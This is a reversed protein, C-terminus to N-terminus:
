QKLFSYRFLEKRPGNGLMVYIGEQLSSLELFINNDGAHIPFHYRKIMRGNMDMVSLLFSGEQLSHIALTTGSSVVTPFVKVSFDNKENGDIMVTRSFFSHGNKEQVKLRFYYPGGDLKVSTFAYATKNELAPIQVSAEFQRDQRAQQIEFYDADEAADIKWDLVALGSEFAARFDILKVPLPNELNISGALTVIESSHLPNLYNSVVSGALGFQGTVSLAGADIWTNNSLEAVRLTSLDTVGGSEPDQFSLELNAAPVPGTESSVTWYERSSIHDIGAGYNTSLARANSRIYEVTFNGTAQKLELWRIGPTKGVPFLFYPENNLGDKRLPGDIYSTNATSSDVVLSCGTALTLLSSSSSTIKGQKLELKYPLSLPSLLVAGKPNNMRFNINNQLSGTLSIVQLSSGGLEICPLGTNTETILGSPSQILNGDIEVVTSNGAGSAINFIGGNQIYDGKVSVNGNAGVLDVSFSVGEGIRLNGKITLPNSGNCAYTVSGGAALSSFSLTGYTRNSASITYSSRPVDFEFIGLETGPARSLLRVINNAHSARTHHIYKGGNSIRISDAILLSEGSALGSANLFVGGNDILLGYGPGTATFAPETMNSSPLIVQITQGAMPLIQLSRVTVATTPLMVTYNVTIASGDIIVDEGTAPRTNGNWNGATAWLGDGAAGTWTRTQAIGPSSLVILFVLFLPCKLFAPIPCRPCSLNFM